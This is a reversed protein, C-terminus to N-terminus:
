SMEEFFVPGKELSVGPSILRFCGGNPATMVSTRTVTAGWSVGGKSGTLELTKVIGFMRLKM